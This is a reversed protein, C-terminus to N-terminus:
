RRCLWLRWDVEWHSYGKLIRLAEEALGLALKELAVARRVYREESLSQVDSYEDLLQALEM